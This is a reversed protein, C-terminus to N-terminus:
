TRWCRGCAAPSRSATGASSGSRRSRWASSTRGIRRAIRSACSGATDRIRGTDLQRKAVTRLLRHIQDLALVATTPDNIAPSLAKAAIDVIIRFAFEPDQEMTREPGTAVSQDLQDDTVGEGGRYLRFLPDGITVFDGVQPVFEILCDARRALDVLGAVDFALVVGTRRAEVTRSPEGERALPVNTPTDGAGAAPRPYVAQIVARGRTGIGTLISVPRLGKGVHDIMYLFVGICSLCSYVGLWVSVQPVTDEIRALSALTYTFAFVFLTLSFKLVPNRYVGGIIRPSLQASALQVAVLLISFVFVIFTLMSSALAGLVARAGDVSIVAKWGLVADVRQMQPHLLLAAVMGLLPPLWVSNRLFSNIRYRQLWSM